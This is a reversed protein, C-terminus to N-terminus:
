RGGAPDGQGHGSALWTPRSGRRMPCGYDPGSSQGGARNVILTDSALQFHARTQRMRQESFRLLTRGFGHDSDHEYRGTRSTGGVLVLSSCMADAASDDTVV